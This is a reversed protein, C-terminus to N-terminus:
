AAGQIAKVTLAMGGYVGLLALLGGPSFVIAVAILLLLTPTM